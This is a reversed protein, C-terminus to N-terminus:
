EAGKRRQKVEFMRKDASELVQDISAPPETFEALGISAGVNPSNAKLLEDLARQLKDIVFAAQNGATEPLMIAFEDGGIRAALDTGRINKKIAFGVEVLLQDGKSHGLTDNVTKFNDLDIYAVSIPLGSRKMRRIEAEAGEVFGKANGLKTLFDIRGMQAERKLADRLLGVLLSLLVYFVFAAVANWVHNIPHLYFVKTPM